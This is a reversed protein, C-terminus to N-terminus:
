YQSNRFNVVLNGSGSSTVACSHLTGGRQRNRVGSSRAGSTSGWRVLFLDNKDGHLLVEARDELVHSASFAISLVLTILTKGPPPLLVGKLLPKVLCQVLMRSFLSLRFVGHEMSLLALLQREVVTFLIDKCVEGTLM